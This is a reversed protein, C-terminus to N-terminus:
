SGSWQSLNGNQVLSGGSSSLLFLNRSGIPRPSHSQQANKTNRRASPEATCTLMTNGGLGNIRHTIGVVALSTTSLILDDGTFTYYDMLEANPFLPLTCSIKAKPLAYDNTVRDALNQAETSESIQSTVEESIQMYRRGFNTISTSAPAVGTNTHAELRQKALNSYLVSVYNRIDQTSLSIKLGLMQSMTFTRDVAPSSRDPAQLVLKIDAANTQWRFRLDYGIQDALVEIADMVTQRQQLYKRIAWAPSDAGAFETGGTGTQSWLTPATVSYATGYDTLISQIVDEVEVSGADDGYEKEAEIFADALDGMEDRCSLRVGWESVETETIRGRFKLMYDSSSPSVDKPTVALSIRIQKYPQLLAGYAVYGTSFSFLNQVTVFPSSTIEGQPGALLAVDVTATAISSDISENIEVSNVWNYGLYSGLDIWSSTITSYVEVKAWAARTEYPAAYVASQATTITRM